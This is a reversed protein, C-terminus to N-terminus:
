QSVPFSLFNMNTSTKIFSRAFIENKKNGFFHMEENFPNEM